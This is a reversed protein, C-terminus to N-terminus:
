SSLNVPKGRGEDKGAFAPSFSLKGRVQDPAPPKFPKFTKFGIFIQTMPARAIAFPRAARKGQAASNAPLEARALFPEKLFDLM